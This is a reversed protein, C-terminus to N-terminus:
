MCIEYKHLKKDDNSNSSDFDESWEFGNELINPNKISKLEFTEHNLRDHKIVRGLKTIQTFLKFQYIECENSKGGKYWSQKKRWDKTQKSSSIIDDITIESM